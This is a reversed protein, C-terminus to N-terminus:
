KSDERREPQALAARVLQAAHSYAYRKGKIRAAVAAHHPKTGEREARDAWPELAQKDRAVRELEDALRELRDREAALSAREALLARLDACLVPGAWKDGGTELAQGVRAAAEEPTPLTM